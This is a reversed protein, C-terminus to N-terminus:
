GVQKKERYPAFLGTVAAGIIGGIWPVMFTISLVLAMEQIPHDIGGATLM